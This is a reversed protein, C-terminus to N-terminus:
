QSTTKLKELIEAIKKQIEEIQSKISNEDRLTQVVKKEIKEVTQSGKKLLSGIGPWEGIVIVEAQIKSLTKNWIGRVVVKMGIELDSFSATGSAMTIKTGGTVVVTQNGREGTKLVFTDPPTISEITGKFVAFVKQISVNRITKAYILYNDNEDLYGHINVIDGVSFESLNSDGWYHRVIKAGTANVKYAYSFISVKLFDTGVETVKAAKLLVETSPKGAPCSGLELCIVRGKIEKISLEQRLETELINKVIPKIPLPHPLSPTSTSTESAVTEEDAKVLNMAILSSATLVVVLGAIIIFYKKM